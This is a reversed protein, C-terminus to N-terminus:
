VSISKMVDFNCKLISNEEMFMALDSEVSWCSSGTKIASMGIMVDCHLHMVTGPWDYIAICILVAVLINMAQIDAQGANWDTQNFHVLAKM